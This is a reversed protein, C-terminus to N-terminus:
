SQIPVPAFEFQFVPALQCFATVNVVPFTGPLASIACIPTTANVPLWGTTVALAVHEPKIKPLAVAVVKVTFVPAVRVTLEVNVFEAVTLATTLPVSRNLPLKVFEPVTVCVPLPVKLM